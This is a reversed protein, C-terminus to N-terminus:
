SETKQVIAKNKHKQHIIMSRRRDRISTSIIHTSGVDVRLLESQHSNYQPNKFTWSLENKQTVTTKKHTRVLNV